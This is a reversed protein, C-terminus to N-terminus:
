RQLWTNNSSTFEWVHLGRGTAGFYPPDVTLWEGPLTVKTGFVRGRAAMGGVLLQYLRMVRNSRQVNSNERALPSLPGLSSAARFLNGLGGRAGSLRLASPARPSRAELGSEM